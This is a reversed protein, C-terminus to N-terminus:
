DPLFELIRNLAGRGPYVAPINRKKIEAKYELYNTKLAHVQDESLFRAILEQELDHDIKEALLDPVDMYRAHATLLALLKLRYACKGENGLRILERADTQRIKGMGRHMVMKLLCDTFTRGWYHIIFCDNPRYLFQTEANLGNEDEVYFVHPSIVGKILYTKVIHKGIHGLFGRRRDNPDFDSPAMIWFPYIWDPRGMGVLAEPITRHVPSYFFEDIDVLFTYESKIRSYKFAKLCQDPTLNVDMLSFNLEIDATRCLVKIKNELDKSQIIFHFSFVGTEYHHEIFSSLYPLEAECARTLISVTPQSMQKITGIKVRKLHTFQVDKRFM